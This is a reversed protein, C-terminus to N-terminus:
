FDCAAGLRDCQRKGNSKLEHAMHQDIKPEIRGNKLGTVPDKQNLYRKLDASCFGYTLKFRNFGFYDIIPDILYFNLEKLAIITEPNQPFPNIKTAYKKYTQTCTCFDVLTLYKGLSYNTM